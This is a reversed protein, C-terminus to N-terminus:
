SLTYVASMGTSDFLTQLEALEDASFTIGALIGTISAQIKPTNDFGRKADDLLAIFETLLTNAVLATSAATKMTTYVDADLLDHWFRFYDVRNAKEYDALETADYVRTESNWAYSNSFYAAGNTDYSPYDVKKWGLAVLEDDTKDPIDFRLEDEPNDKWRDPLMQPAAGNPPSWMGRAETAAFDTYAM